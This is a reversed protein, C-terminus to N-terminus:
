FRAQKDAVIALRAYVDARQPNKAQVKNYAQIAEDLEGQKELSRGLAMQVDAVQEKDLKPAREPPPAGYNSAIQPRASQCGSAILSALVLMQWNARICKARICKTRICNKRICVM